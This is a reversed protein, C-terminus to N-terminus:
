KWHAASLQHITSTNSYSNGTGNSTCTYSTTGSGTNEDRWTYHSTASELDIQILSDSNSVSVGGGNAPITDETVGSGITVGNYQTSLSIVKSLSNPNTNQVAATSVPTSSNYGTIEWTHTVSRGSGGNGAIYTSGSASTVLYYVASTVGGPWVGGSAAGEMKAALTMTTGGLSVYTNNPGALQCTVVVLKTGSSLSVYGAPFGNGTTITRGKYTASPAAASVGYYENFANQSTSGKGIMARIDSDNMAAQSGSSGGAEVHLQNLSIEGSSPLTM